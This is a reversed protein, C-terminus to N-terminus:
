NKPQLWSTLINVGLAGVVAPFMAAWINAVSKGSSADETSIKSAAELAEYMVQFSNMLAFSATATILLAIGCALAKKSNVDSGKYISLIILTPIIATIISAWNALGGM